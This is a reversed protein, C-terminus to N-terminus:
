VIRRHVYIVPKTKVRLVAPASKLDLRLGAYGDVVFAVDYGPVREHANLLYEFGHKAFDEVGLGEIKSYSWGSDADRAEGFRSVGTMAAPVDVHARGPTEEAHLRRFAEGGPYNM